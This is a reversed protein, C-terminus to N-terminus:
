EEKKEKDLAEATELDYLLWNLIKERNM